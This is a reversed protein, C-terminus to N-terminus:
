HWENRKRNGKKKARHQQSAIEGIAITGGNKSIGGGSEQWFLGIFLTYDM